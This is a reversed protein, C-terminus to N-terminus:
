TMENIPFSTPLGRKSLFGQKSKIPVTVELYRNVRERRQVDGLLGIKLRIDRNDNNDPNTMKDLSISEQERNFNKIDCIHWQKFPYCRVPNSQPDSESTQYARVADEPPESPIEYPPIHWTNFLLVSRRLSRFEPTRVDQDRRRSWLELNSGGEEPDLYALAPRPVAHSMNGAFRLLRSAVSPVITIESFQGISRQKWNQEETFLITPGTVNEGVELYLVHGHNPFRILKEIQSLKEDVDKHLELSIWEDRWWYEVIPSKDSLEYLISDITSEINTRPRISRHFVTHGLGGYIADSDVKRCNDASLIDDFVRVNREGHLRSLYPTVLNIHYFAYNCYILYSFLVLTLIRIM